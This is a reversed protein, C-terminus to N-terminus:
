LGEPCSWHAKSRAPGEANFGSDPLRSTANTFPGTDRKDSTAERACKTFCNKKLQLMYGPRKAGMVHSATALEETM